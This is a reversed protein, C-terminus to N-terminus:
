QQALGAKQALDSYFALERKILADFADPELIMAQAGMQKLRAQVGPAGLAKATETYLREVIPRPTKAPAAIGVWLGFESDPYGQEFTTPVDPLVDSRHKSTVAIAQMKGSQLFPLAPTIPSFYIDVRGAMVETLAEPAGKFPVLRGEIGMTRLFHVANLHPGAGLIAGYTLGGDRSKALAVLDAISRAKHESGTVLLHPLTALTTIGAFDGTTDYPISKIVGPAMAHTTSLALITYGDPSSKAVAGAALTGSAGPRNEFIFPQGVSQSVQDLVFRPIIDNASGPSLTIIVRVPKNPYNSQAGALHVGTVGM